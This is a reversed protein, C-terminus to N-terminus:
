AALIEADILQAELDPGFDAPPLGNELDEPLIVEDWCLCNPGWPIPPQEIPSQGDRALFRDPGGAVLQRFFERRHQEAHQERTTQILASFWRRGAVLDGAQEDALLLGEQAVRVGETRAIRRAKFDVLGSSEKVDRTLQDINKGSAIGSSLVGELERAQGVTVTKIREAWPIGDLWPANNIMSRVVESTPSPFELTRVLLRAAESDPSITGNILARYEEMPVLHDVDEPGFGPGGIAGEGGGEQEVAGTFGAGRLRRRVFISPPVAEVWSGSAVSHSDDVIGGLSEDMLRVFSRNAQDAARLLGPGIAARGMRDGFREVM